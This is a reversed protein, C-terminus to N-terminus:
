IAVSLVAAVVSCTGTSAEFWMGIGVAGAVAVIMLLNM